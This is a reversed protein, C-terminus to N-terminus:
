VHRLPSQLLFKEVSSLLKLLGTLSHRTQGGDATATM